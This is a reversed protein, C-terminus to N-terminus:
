FIKRKRCESKAGIDILVKFEQERLRQVLRHAFDEKTAAVMIVTELVFNLCVIM